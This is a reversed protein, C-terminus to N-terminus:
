SFTLIAFFVKGPRVEERSFFDEPPPTDADADADADAASSLLLLIYAENSFILYYIM